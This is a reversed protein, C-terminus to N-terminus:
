PADSLIVLGARTASELSMPSSGVIGLCVFPPKEPRGIYSLDCVSSEVFFPFQFSKGVDATALIPADNTGDGTALVVHGQEQLSGLIRLKDAPTARGFVGNEVVLMRLEVSFLDGLSSTSCDVAPLRTGAEIDRSQSFGIGVSSCVMYINGYGLYQYRYADSPYRNM